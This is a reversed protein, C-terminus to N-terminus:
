VLPAIGKLWCAQEWECARSKRLREQPAINHKNQSGLMKRNDETRSSESAGTGLRETAGEICYRTVGLRGSIVPRPEAALAVWAGSSLVQILDDSWTKYTNWLHVLHLHFLLGWISLKLLLLLCGIMLCELFCFFCCFIRQLFFVYNLERFKYSWIQLNVSSSLSTCILYACM